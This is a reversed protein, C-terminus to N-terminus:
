YPPCIPAKYKRKKPTIPAEYTLSIEHSGGSSPGLGSVTLDYSYAVQIGNYRFGVMFALADSGFYGKLMPVGRYWIGLLLPYKFWYGGIDIQAFREQYRINAAVSLSQDVGRRYLSQIVFRYGGFLSFRFPVRSGEGYFSDKPRLMHDWTSGVWANESHFLISVTADIDYIRQKGPRQMTTSSPPDTNLQDGWTLRSYSISNQRFYFGIGPRFSWVDTLPVSYSYVAGVLITGLNGTGALDGLVFVGVGSRLSAINVDYSASLTRYMNPMVSWQDRYSLVARHGSSAGAYSPSMYVPNAFFQTFQPDQAQVRSWAGVFVCGLILPLVVSNIRM